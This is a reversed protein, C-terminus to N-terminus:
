TQFTTIDLNQKTKFQGKVM